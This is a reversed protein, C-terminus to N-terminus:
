IGLHSKAFCGKRSRLLLMNVRRSVTAAKRAPWWGPSVPGPPDALPGQAMAPMNPQAGAAAESSYPEGQYGVSPAPIAGQGVV